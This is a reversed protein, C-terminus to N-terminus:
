NSGDASKDTSKKEGRPRVIANANVKKLAIACVNCIALPHKDAPDDLWEFQAARMNKHTTPTYECYKATM